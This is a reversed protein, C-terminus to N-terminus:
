PAVSAKLVAGIRAIAQNSAPLSAKTQTIYLGLVLPPMSPPWIVAIISRSGYDGAGTKDAIKWDPPLSARLLAAAVQDDVMWQTLQARAAASLADGLLTKRLSSVIANPTTTDRVDGPRAENLAPEKRDLRTHEDGISRMYAAFGAAGGIADFAINAATNDSYSVAAQCIRGLPLADPHLARETIPSYAVLMAKSISVTQDLSLLKGDVKALLAACTFTKHTSNLPFREDGRYHWTNGTNADFVAMGIRAQLVNEEAQVAESLKTTDIAFVPAPIFSAILASFAISAGFHFTLTFSKKQM